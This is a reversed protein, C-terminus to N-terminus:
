NDIEFENNLSSVQDSIIKNLAKKLILDNTFQENVISDGTELDKFESSDM